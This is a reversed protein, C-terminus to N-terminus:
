TVFPIREPVELCALIPPLKIVNLNYTNAPVMVPFSGSSDVIMCELGLMSVDVLGLAISCATTGLVRCM